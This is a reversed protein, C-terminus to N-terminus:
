TREGDSNIYIIAQRKGDEFVEDAVEGLGDVELERLAGMEFGRIAREITRDKSHTHSANYIAKLHDYEKQEISTFKEAM